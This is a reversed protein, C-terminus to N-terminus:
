INNLLGPSTQVSTHIKVANVKQVRRKPAPKKSSGAPQTSSPTPAPMPFHKKPKSSFYARKNKPLLSGSSSSPKPSHKVSPPPIISSSSSGRKPAYKVSVAPTIKNPVAAKTAAMKKNAAPSKTSGPTLPLKVSAPPQRPAPPTMRTSKSGSGSPPTNEASSYDTHKRKKAHVNSTYPLILCVSTLCCPMSPGQARYDM